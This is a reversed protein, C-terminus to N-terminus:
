ALLAVLDRADKINEAHWCNQVFDRARAAGIIPAANAM